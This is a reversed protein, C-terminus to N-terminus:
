VRQFGVWFSSPGHLMSKATSAKMEGCDCEVGSRESALGRATEGVRAADGRSRFTVELCPACLSLPRIGSAINALLHSTPFIIRADREARLKATVEDRCARTNCVTDSNCWYRSYWITEHKRCNRMALTTRAEMCRILDEQALTDYRGGPRVVGTVLAAAPIMTCLYLAIPLMSRQKVLRTVNATRIADQIPIVELVPTFLATKVFRHGEPGLAVTGLTVSSRLISFSHRLCTRM